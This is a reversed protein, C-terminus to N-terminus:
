SQSSVADVFEQLGTDYQPTGVRERKVLLTARLDAGADELRDALAEAYRREDFGGYTLFLGTPVGEVQLRDVFATVPPCSFTWKPSGLFLADADRYDTRMSEIPVTSGPVFSRLLWNWYRRQKTPRIRHVSPRELISAFDSAVQETTGTRSFYTVAVRSM